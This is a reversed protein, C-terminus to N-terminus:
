EIRAKCVEVETIDQGLKIIKPKCEPDSITVTSCGTTFLAIM